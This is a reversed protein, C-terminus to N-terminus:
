LPRVEDEYFVRMWDRDNDGPRKLFKECDEETAQWIAVRDTLMDLNEEPSLGPPSLSTEKRKKKAPSARLSKRKRKRSRDPQPSSRQQTVPASALYTLHLM